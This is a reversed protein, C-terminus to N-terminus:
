GFETFVQEMNDTATILAFGRLVQNGGGFNGEGVGHALADQRGIGQGDLEGGMRGTEAAFGTRVAFVRAAQNALVLEVFHFHYLDDVGIGGIGRQFFHDAM